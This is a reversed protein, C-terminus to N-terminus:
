LVDGLTHFWPSGVQIAELFRVGSLTRAMPSIRLRRTLVAKWPSAGDLLIENFTRQDTGFRLTPGDGFSATAHQWPLPDSVAIEVSVGSLNSQEALSRVLKGPDVSAVYRRGQTRSPAWGSAELVQGVVEDSIPVNVRIREAGTAAGRDECASVLAAAAARRPGDPDVALETVDGNNKVFAYGLLKGETDAVVIGGDDPMGPQRRCRWAIDDASRVVTGALHAHARNFLEALEPDDSAEARRVSVGEVNTGVGM